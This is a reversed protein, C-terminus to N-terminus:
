TQPQAPFLCAAPELAVACLQSLQNQVVFTQLHSVQHNRAAHANEPLMMFASIYAPICIPPSKSIYGQSRKSSTLIYLTSNSLGSRIWGGYLPENSRLRMVSERACLGLWKRAKATQYASYKRRKRWNSRIYGRIEVGRQSWYNFSSVGKNLRAIAIRGRQM